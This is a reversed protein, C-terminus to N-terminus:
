YQVSPYNSRMAVKSASPFLFTAADIPFPVGIVFIFIFLYKGQSKLNERRRTHLPGDEAINRRTTGYFNLSTESTCVAEMMLAIITRIITATLM